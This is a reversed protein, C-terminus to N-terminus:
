NEFAGPHTSTDGPFFPSLYRQTKSTKLLPKIWTKPETSDPIEGFASREEQGLKFHKQGPGKRQGKAKQQYKFVALGM